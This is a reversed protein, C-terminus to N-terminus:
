KKRRDPRPKRMLQGSRTTKPQPKPKEVKDYYDIIVVTGEKNWYIKSDVGNVIQGDDKWAYIKDEVPPIFGKAKYGKKRAAAVKNPHPATLADEIMKKLNTVDNLHTPVMGEYYNSPYKFCAIMTVMVPGTWPEKLMNVVGDRIVARMFHSHIIPKYEINKPDDIIKAVLKGTHKSKGAVAPQGHKWPRPTGPIFFELRHVHRGPISPVDVKMMM